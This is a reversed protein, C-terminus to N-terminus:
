SAQSLIAETLEGPAIHDFLDKGKPDYIEKAMGPAIAHQEKRWKGLKITRKRYGYLGPHTGGYLVIIKVTNRPSCEDDTSTADRLKKTAVALHMVSTDGTVLIDCQDIFAALEPLPMKPEAPMAVIRGSFDPALARMMRPTADRDAYSPLLVAILDEDRKLAGAIGEALL